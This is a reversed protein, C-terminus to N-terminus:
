IGKFYKGCEGRFLLRAKSRKPCNAARLACESAYTIGDSGCVPSAAQSRLCELPSPCVCRAQNNSNLVCRQYLDCRKLACADILFMSLGCMICKLLFGTGHLIQFSSNRILVRYKFVPPYFYELVWFYYSRVFQTYLRPPKM